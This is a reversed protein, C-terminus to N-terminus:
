FRRLYTLKVVMGRDTARWDGGDDERGETFVLFLDSGPRHIFNV